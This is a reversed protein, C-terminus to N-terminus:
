WCSRLPEAAIGSQAVGPSTVQYTETVRGHYTSEQKWVVVTARRDEALVRAQTADSLPYALQVQIRADLGAGAVTREILQQLERAERSAAATHNAPCILVGVENGDFPLRRLQEIARSM